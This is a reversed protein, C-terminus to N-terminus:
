TLSGRSSPLFVCLSCESLSLAKLQDRSSSRTDMTWQMSLSSDLFETGTTLHEVSGRREMRSFRGRLEKGRACCTFLRYMNTTKDCALEPKTLPSVSRQAGAGAESSTFPSDRHSGFSWLFLGPPARSYDASTGDVYRNRRLIRQSESAKIHDLAQRDICTRSRIQVASATLVLVLLIIPVDRQKFARSAYNAPRGIFVRRECLASRWQGEGSRGSARYGLSQFILCPSTLCYTSTITCSRAPRLVVQSSAYLPALM